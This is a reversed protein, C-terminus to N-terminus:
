APSGVRLRDLEAAPVAAPGLRAFAPMLAVAAAVGTIHAAVSRADGRLLARVLDLLDRAAITPLALPLRRGLLRALVLWRNRTVLHAKRFPMTAGTSSGAHRARAAPVCCSKWGAARLRVALEADEYWSGLREDFIEGGSAVTEALAQRRFLAATASVGFTEFPSSDAAPLARDRGIQVAQWWRNWGLGCGDGLEPRDLRAVVGQASGLRDDSAMAGLLAALWGTELLADDNVLVIRDATTASATALGRNVAAAFGCVREVRILTEGAALEPVGTSGQHVWILTGDHAALESHLRVLMEGAVPSRGVSPVIAALARSM